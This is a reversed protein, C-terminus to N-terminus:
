WVAFLNLDSVFPFYNSDKIYKEKFFVQGDPGDLWFDDPWLAFNVRRPRILLFVLICELLIRVARKNVTDWCASSLPTDSRAAIGPGWGWYAKIFPNILINCLSGGAVLEAIVLM